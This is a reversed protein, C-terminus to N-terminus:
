PGTGDVRGRARARNHPGCLRQLNDLTTPGDHTYPQIHDYQLFHTARCGPHACEPHTQDLVRRQRRTPTRRRPSADIPHRATDCLLLSVFADPLLAAVAHDAIPTGDALLTPQDGRIHIVVEATVTGGHTVTDTLADARQQRLSAGAPAHNTMVQHDIAATVTAAQQPTLRATLTVMGDPDTRWTLSRQTHHRRDIEDPDEHRRSWAAIAAGLRGAPTCAALEVLAEENDDCVHPVLVRAKAYSVEGARMAADLVAHHRLARAVRVQTRATGIDIDAVEALWAACSLAGWAAWTGRADLEGVLVLLEYTGASLRGALAVIEAELREVAMEAVPETVKERMQM